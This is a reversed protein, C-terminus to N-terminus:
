STWVNTTWPSQSFKADISSAPAGSSELAGRSTAHLSRPNSGGDAHERQQHIPDRAVRLPHVDLNRHREAAFRAGIREVRRLPECFRNMRVGNAVAHQRHRRGVGHDHQGRPVPRQARGSARREFSPDLGAPAQDDIPGQDAVFALELAPRVHGALRVLDIRSVVRIGVIRAGREHLLAARAGAFRLRRGERQAVHVAGRRERRLLLGLPREPALGAHLRQAHADAAATHGHDVRLRKPVHTQEVAIVRRQQHASRLQPACVLHM